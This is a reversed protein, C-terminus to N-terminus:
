KGYHANVIAMGNKYNDILAELERVKAELEDVRRLAAAGGTLAAVDHQTQGIIFPILNEIRKAAEENSMM